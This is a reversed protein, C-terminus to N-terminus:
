TWSHGNNQVILFSILHIRLYYYIFLPRYISNSDFYTMTPPSFPFPLPLPVYLPPSTLFHIFFLLYIANSVVPSKGLNTNHVHFYYPNEKSCNELPITHILKDRLKNSAKTLQNITKYESFDYNLDNIDINVVNYNPIEFTGVDKQNSLVDGIFSIYKENFKSYKFLAVATNEMVTRVGGPRCHYHLMGYNLTTM